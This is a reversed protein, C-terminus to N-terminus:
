VNMSLGNIFLYCPNFYYKLLQFAGHCVVFVLSPYLEPTSHKDLLCVARPEIWLPQPAPYLPPCLSLILLTSSSILAFELASM